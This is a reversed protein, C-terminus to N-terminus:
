PSEPPGKIQSPQCIPITDHPMPQPAGYVGATKVFTDFNELQSSSPQEPISFFFNYIDCPSTSLILLYKNINISM